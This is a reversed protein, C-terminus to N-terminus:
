RSATVPVVPPKLKANYSEALEADQEPTTPVAKLVAAFIILALSLGATVVGSIIPWPRAELCAGNSLPNGEFRVCSVNAPQLLMLVVGAMMGATGVVYSLTRTAVRRSHSSELDPRGVLRYFTGRSMWRGDQSIEAGDVLLYGPWQERPPLRPIILPPADSSPPPPEVRGPGEAWPAEAAPPAPAPAPASGKMAAAPDIMVAAVLTLSEDIARCSSGEQTVERSGKVTGEADVLTLRARWRRPGDARLWGEIRLDPQAGFLARGLKKEVAEALGAAGVCGPDSKFTLGWRPEASSLGATLLSALAALASSARM